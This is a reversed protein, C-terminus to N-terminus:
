YQCSVGTPKLFGVKLVKKANPLQQLTSNKKIGSEVVTLVGIVIDVFCSIIQIDITLNTIFILSHM